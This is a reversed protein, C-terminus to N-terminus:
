FLIGIDDIDFKYVVNFLKYGKKEVVFKNFPNYM